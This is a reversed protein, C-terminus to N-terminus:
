PNQNLHLKSITAPVSPRCQFPRLQSAKTLGIVKRIPIGLRSLEDVVPRLAQVLESPDAM